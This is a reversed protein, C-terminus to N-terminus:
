SYGFLFRKTCKLEVGYLRFSLTLHKQQPSGSSRTPPDCRPAPVSSQECQQDSHNVLVGDKRQHASAADSKAVFRQTLPDLSKQYVQAPRQDSSNVFSVKMFHNRAGSTTENTRTIMTTKTVSSDTCIPWALLCFNRARLLSALRTQSSTGRCSM